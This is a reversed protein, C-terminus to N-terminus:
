TLIPESIARQLRCWAMVQASTLKDDSLNLSISIPVIEYAIDCSDLVLMLKFM